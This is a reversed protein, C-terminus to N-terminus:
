FNYPNNSFFTKEYEQCEVGLKNDIFVKMTDIHKFELLKNRYFLFFKNLETLIDVKSIIVKNCGSINISQILKDLNLWNVKRTRGTTAGFENGMIAIKSLTDDELLDNSFDPDVGVRTDYIKAAGYIDRIKRPSFGLSCASYPLTLASTVYPYNGHNIDLWNGQAGECLITGSLEYIDALINPNYIRLKDLEDSDLNCIHTGVRAFKDRSCPAVGKGTSGQSKKYNSIDDEIHTQKIVHANKAVFVKSTDIGADKLYALEKILEDLSVLCDPGIFSNIGYFVGAPVLHTVFKIGNVYITHGANHSGSWRCVWDYKYKQLLSSVIKGKAEDGWALGCVIDVTEIM